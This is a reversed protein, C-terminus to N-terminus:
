ESINATFLYLVSFLHQDLFPVRIKLLTNSSVWVLIM